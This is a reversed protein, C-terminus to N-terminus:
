RASCGSQGSAVADPERPEEPRAGTARSPLRQGTPPSVGAPVPEPPRPTVGVLGFPGAGTRLRPATRSPPRGWLQKCCYGCCGCPCPGDIKPKETVVTVPIVLQKRKKTAM